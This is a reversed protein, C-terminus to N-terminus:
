KLLLLFGPYQKDVVAASRKFCKQLNSKKDQEGIQM